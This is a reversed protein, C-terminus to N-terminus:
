AFRQWRVDPLSAATDDPLSPYGPNERLLRQAYAVDLASRRRPLGEALISRVLHRAAAAAAFLIPVVLFLILATDM